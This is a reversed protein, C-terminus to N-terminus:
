LINKVFNEIKKCRVDQIKVKNLSSYKSRAQDRTITDSFISYEDKKDMQAKYVVWYDPKSYKKLSDVEKLGVNFKPMNDALLKKPVSSGVSLTSNIAASVVPQPIVAFYEYYHNNILERKYDNSYDEYIENMFAKVEDQNAFYDMTRLHLKVDLTSTKGTTSILMDMTTRVINQTLQKTM